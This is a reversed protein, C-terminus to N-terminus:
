KADRFKPDMCDQWSKGHVFRSMDLHTTGRACIVLPNQPLYLGERLWPPVWAVFDSSSNLIWGDKITPNEGLIQFEHSSSSEETNWVRITRDESGSVIKLGDPSFAVSSVRDIHGQFPGAVIAGTEVDWVRISNPISEYPVPTENVQYPVILAESSEYPVPTLATLAHNLPHGRTRAPLERSVYVHRRLHM